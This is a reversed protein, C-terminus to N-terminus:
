YNEIVIRGNLDVEIGSGSTIHKHLKLRGNSNITVVSWPTSPDDHDQLTVTVGGDEEAELGIEYTVEPTNKGAVIFKPM